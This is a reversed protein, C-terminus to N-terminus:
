RHGVVTTTQPWREAMRVALRRAIEGVIELLGSALPTARVLCREFDHAALGVQVLDAVKEHLALPPLGTTEALAELSVVDERTLRELMRHSVPDVGVRLARLVLEAALREAEASAPPAMASPAEGGSAGAPDRVFRDWRSRAMVIDRLRAWIGEAVLDFASGGSV